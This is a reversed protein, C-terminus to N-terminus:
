KDRTVIQKLEIRDSMLIKVRPKKKKKREIKTRAKKEKGNTHLIM